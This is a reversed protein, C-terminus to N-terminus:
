YLYYHMAQMEMFLTNRSHLQRLLKTKPFDFSLSFMQMQFCSSRTKSNITDVSPLLLTDRTRPSQERSPSKTTKILPDNESCRLLCHCGVGTSKDPFDWPHLLRSPQLGHPRRPDSVVIDTPNHPTQSLSNRYLSTNHKSLADSTAWHYLIWRGICSIHTWDRPWSSDRSSSIPLERWSEQRPFGMPLPAQHAVTWPTVFPWVCSHSQAHLCTVHLASQHELSNRVQCWDRIGPIGLSVRTHIQNLFGFSFWNGIIRLSVNGKKMGVSFCGDKCEWQPYVKNRAWGKM